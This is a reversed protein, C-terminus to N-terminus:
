LDRLKFLLDLNIKQLKEKGSELEFEEVFEEKDEKKEEKPKAKKRPLKPEPKVEVINGHEDTKWLKVGKKQLTAEQIIPETWVIVVVEKGVLWGPVNVFVRGYLRGNVIMKRVTAKKVIQM